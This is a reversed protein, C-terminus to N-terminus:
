IARCAGRCGPGAMGRGRGSRAPPELGWSRLLREREARWTGADVRDRRLRQNLAKLERRQAADLRDRLRFPQARFSPPTARNGGQTRGQFERLSDCPPRCAEPGVCDLRPAGDLGAARGHPGPGRGCQAWSSGFLLGTALLATTLALHANM